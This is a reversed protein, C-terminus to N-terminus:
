IDILLWYHGVMIKVVYNLNKLSYYPTGPRITRISRWQSHRLTLMPIASIGVELLTIMKSMPSKTEAHRVIVFGVNKIM